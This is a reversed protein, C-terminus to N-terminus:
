LEQLKFEHHEVAIKNKTAKLMKHPDHLMSMITKGISPSRSNLGLNITGYTNQSEIDKIGCRRQQAM